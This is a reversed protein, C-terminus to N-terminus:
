DKFFEKFYFASSTIRCAVVDGLFVSEQCEIFLLHFLSCFPDFRNSTHVITFFTSSETKKFKKQFQLM